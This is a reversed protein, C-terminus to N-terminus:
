TNVEIAVCNLLCPSFQPSSVCKLSHSAATFLGSSFVEQLNHEEEESAAAEHKQAEQIFAASCM